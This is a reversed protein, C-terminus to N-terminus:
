PISSVAVLVSAQAPLSGTVAVAVTKWSTVVVADETDTLGDNFGAIQGAADRVKLNVYVPTLGSFAGTGSLAVRAPAVHVVVRAPPRLQRSHLLPPWLLLRANLLVARSSPLKRKGNSALVPWLLKEAHM